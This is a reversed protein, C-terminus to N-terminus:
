QAFYFNLLRFRYGDREAEGKGPPQERAYQVARDLDHDWFAYVEAAEAWRETALLQPGKELAYERSGPAPPREGPEGRVAAERPPVFSVVVLITVTLGLFRKAM